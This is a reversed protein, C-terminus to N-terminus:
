NSNKIMTPLDVLTRIRPCDVREYLGLPDILVARLGALRAGMIDISYIDGVYISEDSGVGLASLALHFIQPHPKEVGVVDSDIIVGFYEALGFRKLKGELKGDSNSIVGLRYGEEKLRALLDHTEPPVVTWLGVARNKEWLKHLIAAHHEAPVHVGNLITTFYTNMLTTSVWVKEIKALEPLKKLLFNDLDVKARYEAKMIADTAVSHGVAEILSKIYGHNLYMLTNGVDFFVAKVPSM